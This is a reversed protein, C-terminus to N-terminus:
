TWLRMPCVPGSEQDQSALISENETELLLQAWILSELNGCLSFRIRLRFNPSKASIMKGSRAIEGMDGCKSARLCLM